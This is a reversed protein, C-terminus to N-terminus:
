TARAELGGPLAHEGHLQGTAHSEGAGREDSLPGSHLKSSRRRALCVIHHTHKGKSDWVRGVAGRLCRALRQTHSARREPRSTRGICSPRTGGWRCTHHTHVQARGNCPSRAAPLTATWLLGSYREGRLQNWRCCRCRLCCLCCRCCRCCHCCH